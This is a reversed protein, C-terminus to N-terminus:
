EGQGFHRDDREILIRHFEFIRRGVDAVDVEVDRVAIGDSLLGGCEKIPARCLTHDRVCGVGPSFFLQWGLIELDSFTFVKGIINLHCDSTHQSSPGRTTM